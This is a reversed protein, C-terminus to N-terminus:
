HSLGYRSQINSIIKIFAKNEYGSHQDQIRQKV